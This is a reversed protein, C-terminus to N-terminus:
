VHAARLTVPARLQRLGRGRPPRVLLVAMLLVWAIAAGLLLRLVFRRTEALVAPGPLFSAADVLWRVRPGPVPAWRDGADIFGEAALERIFSAKREASFTDRSARIVVGDLAPEVEVLTDIRPFFFEFRPSAMDFATLGHPFTLLQPGPTGALRDPLPGASAPSM